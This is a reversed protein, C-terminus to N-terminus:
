DFEDDDTQETNNDDECETKRNPDVIEAIAADWRM